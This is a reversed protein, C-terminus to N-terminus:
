DRNTFLFLVSNSTTTVGSNTRGSGAPTFAGSTLAGTGNRLPPGAEAGLWGPGATVPAGDGIKFRSESGMSSIRLAAPAVSLGAGAEGEEIGIIGGGAAGFLHTHFQL